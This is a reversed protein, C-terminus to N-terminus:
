PSRTPDCRKRIRDTSESFEYISNTGADSVTVAPPVRGSEFSQYGLRLNEWFADIDLASGAEGRSRSALSRLSSSSFEAKNEPTMRFPFSHIPVKYPKVVGDSGVVENQNLSAEVLSYIEEIAPDTLALCGASSCGGHVYIEKGAGTNRDHVNHNLDYRNPYGVDFSLHCVSNPNLLRPDIEYFGEPTINDNENRKPGPIGRMECVPYTKFLEYRGSRTQMWIEVVGGSTEDSLQEVLHNKRWDPRPTQLFKSIDVHKFTRIFLPAGVKFTGAPLGQLKESARLKEEMHALNDKLIM